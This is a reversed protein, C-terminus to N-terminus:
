ILHPIHRLLPPSMVGVHLRPTAPLGSHSGLVLGLAVCAWRAQRGLRGVCTSHSPYLRPLVPATAYVPFHTRLSYRVSSRSVRCSISRVPRFCSCRTRPLHLLVQPRPLPARLAYREGGPLGCTARGSTPASRFALLDTPPRPNGKPCVEVLRRLTSRHQMASHLSTTPSQAGKPVLGCCRRLVYSRLTLQLSLPPSHQCGVVVVFSCRVSSSRVATPLAAECGLVAQGASAVRPVLRGM